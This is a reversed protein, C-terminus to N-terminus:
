KKRTRFLNSHICFRQVAISKKHSTQLLIFCFIELINIFFFFIEYIYRSCETFYYLLRLRVKIVKIIYIDYQHKAQGDDGTINLSAQVTGLLAPFFHNMSTCLLNM